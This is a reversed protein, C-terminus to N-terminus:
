LDSPFTKSISVYFYISVWLKIKKYITKYLIQLEKILHRVKTLGQNTKTIADYLDGLVVNLSSLLDKYHTYADSSKCQLIEM